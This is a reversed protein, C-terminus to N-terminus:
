PVVHHGSVWDQYSLEARSQRFNPSTENSDQYIYALYYGYAIALMGTSSVILPNTGAIILYSGYGFAKIKSKQWIKIIPLFLIFVLMIFVPMGYNRLFDYYVLETQQVIGDVGSSYFGAGIGQGVLITLCDNSMVEVYSAAHGLKAVNSPDDPDFFNSLFSSWITFLSIIFAAVLIVKLRIKIKSYLIYACMPLLIAAFMNARTGSFLLALTCILTLVINTINAKKNLYFAIAFVLLPSTKYFIMPTKLEGFQRFGIKAVEKDNFWDVISWIDLIELGISLYILLILASLFTLLFVFQTEYNRKLIGWIVLIFLLSFSKLYSIAFESSFNIDRILGIFYGYSPILLGLTLYIIFIQKNLYYRKSNLCLIIVFLYCICLFTLEKLKFIKNAPDFILLFLLVVFLIDMAREVPNKISIM